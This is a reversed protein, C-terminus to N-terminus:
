TACRARAPPRRPRTIRASSVLQSSVQAATTMPPPRPASSRSRRAPGAARAAVASHHGLHGRAAVQLQDVRHDGVRELRGPDRQVVDLRTATVRPGPRIPARSTPTEAALASAAARSSGSAGTSWRCPWTTALVSPARGSRPARGTGRPWRRGCRGREPPRGPHRCPARGSGRRRRRRPTRCPRASARAQGVRAAGLEVPKRGSPSGSANASGARRRGAVASSKLKLPRFVASSYAM